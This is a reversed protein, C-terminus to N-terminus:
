SRRVTERPVTGLSFIWLFICYLLLLSVIYIFYGLYNITLTARLPVGALVAVFSDHGALLVRAAVVRHAQELVLPWNAVAHRIVVARQALQLVVVALRFEGVALVAAGAHVPDVAEGAGAGLEVAPREAVLM